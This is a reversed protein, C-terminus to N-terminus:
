LLVTKLASELGTASHHFACTHLGPWQLALLKRDQTVLAADLLVATAAVIADPLKPRPLGSRRIEIAINKVADYLPVITFTSLLTVTWCWLNLGAM